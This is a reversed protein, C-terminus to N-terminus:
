DHRRGLGLRFFDRHLGGAGDRPALVVDLVALVLAKDVDDLREVQEHRGLAGDETGINGALDHHLREQRAHGLALKTEVVLHEHVLRGRGTSGLGALICM